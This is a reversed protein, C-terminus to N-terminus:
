NLQQLQKDHERRRQDMETNHADIAKEFERQLDDKEKECRKIRDTLRDNQVKM